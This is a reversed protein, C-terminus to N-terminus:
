RKGACIAATSSTNRPVECEAIHQLKSQGEIGRLYAALSEQPINFELSRDLHTYCFACTDSQRGLGRLIERMYRIGSCIGEGNCVQSIQQPTLNVLKHLM